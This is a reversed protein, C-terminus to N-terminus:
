REDAEKLEPFPNSSISNEWGGVKVVEKYGEICNFFM